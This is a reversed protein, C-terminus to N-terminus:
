AEESMTRRRRMVLGLLGLLALPGPSALTGCGCRSSPAHAATDGPGTDTDTDIETWSPSLWLWEADDTGGDECWADGALGPGDLEIAAYVWPPPPAPLTVVWSSGAGEAPLTGQPTIASVSRIHAAPEAPLEIEMVLDEGDPVALEAGLGGLERGGSTYRVAVPVLPGTTAYTRREVLAEYLAPRDFAVGEPVVAVSLGGSGTRDDGWPACLDGAQTTHNDTGGIFGMRLAHGDPSMAQHVAGDPTIGLLPPDHAADPDLAQGSGSYVEVAVEWDPHHVSWDTPLPSSAMPHHPLLLAPGWRDEFALMWSGLEAAEAIEVDVSRCPQVDVLELGALQDDAAFMYLNKHGLPQDGLYICLEAGPIVLLGSGEDDHELVMAHLMAFDDESAAILPGNVHDTIALWDLGNARALDFVDALAGCEVCGDGLDASVGDGSVGTHQHPDGLHYTNGQFTVSGLAPLPLLMLAPVITAPGSM